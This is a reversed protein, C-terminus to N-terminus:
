RDFKQTGKNEDVDGSAGENKHFPVLSVPCPVRSTPALDPFQIVGCASVGGLWPIMLQMKATGKNEDVDGSAGENQPVPFLVLSVPCPSSTAFQNRERQHEEQGPIFDDVSNKRGKTKMLMAPHVKM